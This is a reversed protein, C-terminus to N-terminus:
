GPLGISALFEAETMRPHEGAFAYADPKRDIYIEGLFRVGEWSELSGAGIHLDGASPGATVRYFLSSGCISCFAREAWDSSRWTRIADEGEFRAEGAKAAFSLNVGGSWARCMGCHCAGVEVSDKMVEYRVAGCLCKGKVSM